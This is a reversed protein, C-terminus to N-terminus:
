AEELLEVWELFGDEPDHFAEGAEIWAGEQLTYLVEEAYGVSRTIDGLANTDIGYMACSEDAEVFPEGLEFTFAFECHPCTDLWQVNAPAGTIVCHDEGGVFAVFEVFGTYSEGVVIDGEGYWGIYDEEEGESDEGESDEGGTSGGGSVSDSASTTQWWQTSGHEGYGGDTSGGTAADTSSSDTGSPTDGPGCASLALALGSAWLLSQKAM